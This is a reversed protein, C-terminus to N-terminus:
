VRTSMTFTSAFAGLTVAIWVATDAHCTYTARRVRLTAEEWREKLMSNQLQLMANKSALDLGDSERQLFCAFRHNIHQHWKGTSVLSHMVHWTMLLSCCSSKSCCSACHVSCRLCCTSSVSFSSVTLNDDISRGHAAIVAGKYAKWKQQLETGESGDTPEQFCPLNFLKHKPYKDQLVATDELIGRRGKCLFNLYNVAAKDVKFKEGKDKSQNFKLNAQLCAPRTLAL